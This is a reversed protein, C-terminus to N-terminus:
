IPEWKEADIIGSEISIDITRCKFDPIVVSVPESIGSDIFVFRKHDMKCNKYSAGLRRGAAPIRLLSQRHSSRESTSRDLAGDDPWPRFKNWAYGRAARVVPRANSQLNSITMM